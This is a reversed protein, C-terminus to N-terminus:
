CGTGAIRRTNYSACQKCKHGAVHFAVKSTSNCDNCLISVQIFVRAFSLFTDLFKREAGLVPCSDMNIQPRRMSTNSPCKFLRLRDFSVEGIIASYKSM